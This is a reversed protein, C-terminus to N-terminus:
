EYVILIHHGFSYIRNCSYSLITTVAFTMFLIVHERILVRSTKGVLCDTHQYLSCLCVSWKGHSMHGWHLVIFGLYFPWKTSSLKLNMKAFSFLQIEIRIENFNTRWLPGFLFLGANIWIIAPHRVPSLGNYSGIITKICVCIHTM